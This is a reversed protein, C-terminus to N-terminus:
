RSSGAAKPLRYMRIHEVDLEDKFVGIVRGGAIAMVELGPPMSVQAVWRGTADFLWWDHSPEVEFGGYRGYQQVWVRGRDDVLLDAYAPKTDPARYYDAPPGYAREDPYDRFFQEIQASTYSWEEATVPQPEANWRIIGKLRGNRDLWRLEFDRASGVVVDEGLTAWVARRGYPMRVRVRQGARTTWSRGELASITAVTDRTGDDFSAWYLTASAEFVEEGPEPARYPLHVLLAATCDPSVGALSARREALHGALPVTRIFEGTGDFLSLRVVEEIVITDDECRSLGFIARLEGPGDGERGRAYSFTGDADFFFLQNTGSNAVVLRGDSLGALYWVDYLYHDPEGFDSRIEVDPTPDIIWSDAARSAASEAIRVGASDRVSFTNTTRDSAACGTALGTAVFGCTCLIL